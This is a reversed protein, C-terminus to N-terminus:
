AVAQSRSSAELERRLVAGAEDALIGARSWQGRAMALLSREGLAVAITEPTSAEEQASLVAQFYADGGDLDGSLVRALGQFLAPASEVIHEEAFMRAAEDADARL